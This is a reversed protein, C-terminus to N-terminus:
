AIVLRGMAQWMDREFRLVIDALPEIRDVFALSQGASLLGKSWDGTVYANRGIKGAVMPMLDQITVDPNQAEIEKVAATTENRLTRVTNRLSQMSLETDTPGADVLRQKYDAHAWIEEAVAFRTGVVVGSAGMALAAALQSGRGIGGGILYPIDLQSEAWAANVFSGVMDLGPHGGCEAGVIAVADVGLAAAKVAFRVAPVKHLVKVGAEKLLPLFEEPNRGSTEVFKVGEDVILEFVERTKEGPVLKPLMSVNVGFPGGECLERCRRIEARLAQPEPFSAATIFGIIGARSAAAVYDADALWMLGGAVIPLRTGFLETVANRFAIQSM